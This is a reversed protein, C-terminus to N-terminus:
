FEPQGQAFLRSVPMIEHIDIAVLTPAPLPKNGSFLPFVRRRTSAMLGGFSRYESCLHAARAWGGVVEATYDLRRLLRDRDFYFVQKPSHTPLDPPFTVHVRSCSEFEGPLPELLEFLFGERAFLFPVTLYNWMAYGAFYSFDLDDWFLQRRFSSFSLRPRIRQDIITGDRGSIRV